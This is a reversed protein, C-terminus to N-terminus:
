PEGYKDAGGPIWSNYLLGDARLMFLSCLCIAPAFAMYRVGDIPSKVPNYVEFSPTSAHLIPWDDGVHAERDHLYPSFDVVVDTSDLCGGTPRKAKLPSRKDVDKSSM